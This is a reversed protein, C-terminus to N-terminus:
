SFSGGGAPPSIYKEPLNKIGMSDHKFYLTHLSQPNTAPPQIHTHYRIIRHWIKEIQSLFTIFIHYLTTIFFGINFVTLRM